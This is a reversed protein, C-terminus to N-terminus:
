DIANTKKSAVLFIFLVLRNRAKDTVTREGGSLGVIAFWFTRATMERYHSKQWYHMCTESTRFLRLRLFIHCKSPGFFGFLTLSPFDLKKKNNLLLYNEITHLTRTTGRIYTNKLFSQMISKNEKLCFQCKDWGERKLAIVNPFSNHFTWDM